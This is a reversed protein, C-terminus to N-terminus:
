DYKNPHPQSPLMSLILLIFGGIYPVFLGILVWWGSVGIDHLRRIQQSLLPILLVFFIISTFFLGFAWGTDNGGYPDSASFFFLLSFMFAFILGFYYLLLGWWYESRQCRGEGNWSRITRRLATIPDVMQLNLYPNHMSASMQQTATQVVGGFQQHAQGQQAAVQSTYGVVVQTPRSTIQTTQQPQTAVPQKQNLGPPVKPIPAGVFEAIHESCYPKEGPGREARFFSECNKCFLTDCGEKFCYLGPNTKADIPTKCMSCRELQNGSNIVIDGTTPGIANHGVQVSDTLNLNPANPEM